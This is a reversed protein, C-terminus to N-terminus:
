DAKDEQTQDITEMVNVEEGHDKKPVALTARAQLELKSLRTSCLIDSKKLDDMAMLAGPPTNASYGSRNASM